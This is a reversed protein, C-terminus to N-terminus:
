CVEREKDLEGVQWSALKCKKGRPHQKQRCCAQKVGDEALRVVKAVM